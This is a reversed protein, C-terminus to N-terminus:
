LTPIMVGIDQKEGDLVNGHIYKEHQKTMM